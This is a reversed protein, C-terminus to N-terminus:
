PAQGAPLVKFTISNNYTGAAQAPPASLFFKLYIISNGLLNDGIKNDSYSTTLVRKYDSPVNDNTVNFSISENSLGLVNGAESSLDGNAKVYVDVNGEESSLNIYYTTPGAFNNGYASLNSVPLSQLDWFLNNSLNESLDIAIAYPSSSTNVIREETQNRHGEINVGYARFRHEGESLNSFNNEYQFLSANYLAGIEELSLSRNFILVEDITGNFYYGSQEYSGITIKSTLTPSFKDVSESTSNYLEGDIYFQKLGTVNDYVAVYHYWQNASPTHLCLSERTGTDGSSEDRTSFRLQTSDCVADSGYTALSFRWYDEVTIDESYIPSYATVDRWNVWMSVTQSKRDSLSIVSTNSLAIYDDLGDFNLGKGFRGIESQAVGYLNSGNNSYSSLDIIGGSENLDDMRLWGFLSNDFDLFTYHDRPDDSTVNVYLNSGQISGSAPTPQTFNISPANVYVLFGRAETYNKNGYNDECYYRVTYTGDAISWNSANFDLNGNNQMSYNIGDNLTYNCSGESNLTVNFMVPLSTVVFPPQNITVLSQSPTSIGGSISYNSWSSVNFIVTGANLSTFNWCGPKTTANCEYRGDRLIVPNLYNTRLGYLTVNASKNLGSLSSNVYVSNNNIQINSSLNGGSGSIGAIFSIEGFGTKGFAVKSSTTGFNYKGGRVDFLKTGDALGNDFYVSTTSDSENVSTANIIRNRLNQTADLYIGASGADDITLNVVQNDQASSYFYVGYDISYGYSNTVTNNSAEKISLINSYGGNVSRSVVGNLRNNNSYEVWICDWIASNSALCEVQDAINNHAHSLQLGELCNSFYLNSFNNNTIQSSSSYVMVGVYADAFTSNYVTSNQVGEFNIGYASSSEVGVSINVNQIKIDSLEISEIGIQNFTNNAIWYGNGNFTINNANIRICPNASDIPVINETQIYVSNPESLAGCGSVGINNSVILTYNTPSWAIAGFIDTVLYNWTFNGEYPMSVAIGLDASLGSLSRLTTNIIQGTSNWLYLTANVLGNDSTFTASFNVAMSRASNNAPSTLNVFPSSNTYYTLNYYFADMRLFRNTDGATRNTTTRILAGQANSGFFSDCTWSELSTVNTCTVGPNASAAPCTTSVTSFSSGGDTDVQIACNALTNAGSKWWEYCLFVSSINLCNTISSNSVNLLIGSYRNAASAVNLMATEEYAADNCSVRDNSGSGCSGPYVGACNTAYEYQQTSSNDLMCSSAQLVTSGASANSYALPDIIQDLEIVGEIVQLDFVNQGNALNSLSLPNYQDSVLLDSYAFVEEQNGEYMHISPSGNLVRPYILIENEHTLNVDFTVRVYEGANIAESWNGDLERVVEYLDNLYVRNEDLHEAKSILIIEFTQNSLHPTTWELYDLYVNSDLDYADFDVYEGEEKWYVKIKSEEGVRFKESINTFSLVDTYNLEDPGSVIVQKGYSKEYEFSQPASTYYEITYSTANDQLIVEVVESLNEASDDQLVAEVAESLNETTDQAIDGVAFGSILSLLNKLPSFLKFDGQSFIVDGTVGILNVRTEREEVRRIKRVSVNEAEKPLPITVQEPLDLSVNKVWKVPQGLKIQGRVTKIFLNNTSIFISSEESFSIESNIEPNFERPDQSSYAFHNSTNQLDENFTKNFEAGEVSNNVYVRSINKIEYIEFGNQLTFFESSVKGNIEPYALYAIGLIFILILFFLLTFLDPSHNKIYRKKVKSGERYSEYYYPGYTKGGVRIYKKHVM